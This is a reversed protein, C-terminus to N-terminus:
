CHDSTAEDFQRVGEEKLSRQKSSALHPLAKTILQVERRGKIAEHRSRL